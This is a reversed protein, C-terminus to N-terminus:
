TKSESSIKNRGNGWYSIYFNERRRKKNTRTPTSIFGARYICGGPRHHLYGIRSYFQGIILHTFIAQEVPLINKIVTNAFLLPNIEALNLVYM